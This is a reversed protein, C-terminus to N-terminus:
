SINGEYLAEKITKLAKNIAIGDLVRVSTIFNPSFERGNNTTEKIDLLRFFEKLQERYICLELYEPSIFNTM